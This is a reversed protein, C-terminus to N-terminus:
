PGFDGRRFCFYMKASYSSSIVYGCAIRASIYAGVLRNDYSGAEPQKSVEM